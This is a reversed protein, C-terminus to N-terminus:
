RRAEGMQNRKSELALQVVSVAKESAQSAFDQEDNADEVASHHCVMLAARPREETSNSLFDVITQMMVKRSEPDLHNMPEDLILLQPDGMLTRTLLTRKREGGSATNWAINLIDPDLLGFSRVKERDLKGNSSIRLVDSLVLPLHVETNELQPIFGINKRDISFNVEGALKQMQGLIVRLLTSKGCGNPGSILTLQGPQVSFSLDDQLLNGEPGFALNKIDLLTDM